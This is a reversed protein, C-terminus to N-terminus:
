NIFIDFGDDVQALLLHSCQPFCDVGDSEPDAFGALGKIAEAAAELAIVVELFM